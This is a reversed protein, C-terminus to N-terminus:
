DGMASEKGESFGPLGHFIIHLKLLYKFFFGVSSDICICFEVEPNDSSFWIFLYTCGTNVATNNVIALINFCVLHGDNSLHIFFSHYLHM